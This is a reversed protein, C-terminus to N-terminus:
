QLSVRDVFKQIATSVVDFNRIVLIHDAKELIILELNKIKNPLMLSNNVSFVTDKKGHIVLVPVEINVLQEEMDFDSIHSVSSLYPAIGVKLFEDITRIMDFDTTNTYKVSYDIHKEAVKSNDLKLVHLLSVIPHIIYRAWGNNLKFNPSLFIVGEILEQYKIVFDLAYFTGLSHSVIFFKKINLHTILSHIDEVFKERTYEDYGRHRKSKGHGRLDFSILNYKNKYTAEHRYWASSSGGIGHIFLITPRGDVFDNTRYYLGREELFYEKM